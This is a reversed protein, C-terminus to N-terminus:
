DYPLDLTHKPVLEVERAEVDSSLFVLGGGEIGVVSEDRSEVIVFDRFDDPTAPMPVQQYYPLTEVYDARVRATQRDESVTIELSERELRYQRIRSFKGAQQCYLKRSIESEAPEGSFELSHYTLRQVFDAARLECIEPAYRNRAADDAMDIFERVEQEDLRSCAGLLATATLITLRIARATKGTKGLKRVRCGGFFLGRM